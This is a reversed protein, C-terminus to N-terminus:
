STIAGSMTIFYPLDYTRTLISSNSSELFTGQVSLFGVKPEGDHDDRWATDNFANHRVSMAVMRRMRAM